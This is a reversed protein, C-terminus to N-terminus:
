LESLFWVVKRSVESLCFTYEETRWSTQHWYSDKVELYPLQVNTYLCWCLVNAAPPRHTVWTRIFCTCQPLFPKNKVTKRKLRWITINRVSKMCNLIFKPNQKDGNVSLYEVYEKKTTALGPATRVPDIYDFMSTIKNFHELLINPSVSLFYYSSVSFLFCM